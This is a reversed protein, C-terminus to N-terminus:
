FLNLTFVIYQHYAEHIKMDFDNIHAKSHVIHFVRAANWPTLSLEINIQIGEGPTAVDLLGSDSLKPISKRHYWFRVDKAILHM